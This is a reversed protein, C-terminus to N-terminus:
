ESFPLKDMTFRKDITAHVGNYIKIASILQEETPFENFIVEGIFKGDTDSVKVIFDEFLMESM